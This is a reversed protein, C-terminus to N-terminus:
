KADHFIVGAAFRLGSRIRSVGHRMKVRHYGKAGKRPRENVAFLAAEGQKLLVVEVRSQMRPRQETLVFEGGEFHGADSLLIVLQLPFLHEGYIDQHLCNFDGAEYRLLLPTPRVQGASHCINLMAEHDGPFHHKSGLMDAWRNATRAAHPYVTRRIISIQDPLPYNFYKYEGKGFGHRAMIIRSRFATEDDYTRILGECETPTLLPGLRGVGFEDLEADVARWDCADIRDELSATNAHFGTPTTHTLM